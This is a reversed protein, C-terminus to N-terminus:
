CPRVELLSELAHLLLFAHGHCDEKPTSSQRAMRSKWFTELVLLQELIVQQIPQADVGGLSRSDVSVHGRITVKVERHMTEIVDIHRFVGIGIGLDLPLVELM